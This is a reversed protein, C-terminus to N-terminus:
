AEGLNRRIFEMLRVLGLFQLFMDFMAELVSYLWQMFRLFYINM